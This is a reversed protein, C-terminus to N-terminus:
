NLDEKVNDFFKEMNDWWSNNGRKKHWYWHESGWLLIPSFGTLILNQALEQALKPNASPYEIKDIHIHDNTEWPEAQSEVVWQEKGAKKLRKNWRKIKEGFYFPLPKIYLSRVLPLNVFTGASIRNYVNLGIDDALEMSINLQHEDNFGPVPIPLPFATLTLLTRQNQRKIEKVLAVEKRVFGESLYWGGVFTIPMFPENEVQIHTINPSDKTHTITREIFSLASDTFQNNTDIPRKGLFRDTSIQDQVWSPIHFEPYRPAKVGVTLAVKVNNKLSENILWDITQFNTDGKKPEVENWYTCLRVVDPGLALIERYAKQTQAQDLGLYECQLQSFTTGIETRQSMAPNYNLMLYRDIKQILM